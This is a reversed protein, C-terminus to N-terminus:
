EVLSLEWRANLAYIPCVPEEMSNIPPNDGFLENRDLKQLVSIKISKQSM